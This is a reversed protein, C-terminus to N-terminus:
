GGRGKQIKELEKGLNDEKGELSHVAQVESGVGVSEPFFQNEWISGQVCKEGGSSAREGIGGEEGEKWCTGGGRKRAINLTYSGKKSKGKKRDKMHQSLSWIRKRGEWVRGTTSSTKGEALNAGDKGGGGKWLKTM